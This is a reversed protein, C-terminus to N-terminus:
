NLTGSLSAGQVELTYQDGANVPPYGDYENGFTFVVQTSSWSTVLLGICDGSQGATWGATADDFWLGSSGFVEGTDGAQCSEPAGPPPYSGLDTGTVTMTPDASSGSFTLSTVTPPPAPPVQLAAIGHPTGM